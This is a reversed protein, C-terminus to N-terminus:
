STECDLNESQNTKGEALLNANAAVWVALRTM